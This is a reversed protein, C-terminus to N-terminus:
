NKRHEDANWTEPHNVYLQKQLRTLQKFAHEAKLATGKDPYEWTAVLAVPLYGKLAKAGKGKNHTVTRKVPDKSIGCYMASAHANPPKYHGSVVYM